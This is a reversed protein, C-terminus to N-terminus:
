DVLKRYLILLQDSLNVSVCALDHSISPVELLRAYANKISFGHQCINDALDLSVLLLIFVLLFACPDDVVGLRHLIGFVQYSDKM